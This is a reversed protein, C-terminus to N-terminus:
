YHKYVCLQLEFLMFIPINPSAQKPKMPVKWHHAFKKFIKEHSNEMELIKNSDLLEMIIM